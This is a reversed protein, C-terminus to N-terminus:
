FVRRWRCNELSGKRIQKQALYQQVITEKNEPLGSKALKGECSKYM